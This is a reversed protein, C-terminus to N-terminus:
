SNKKIYDEYKSKTTESLEYPYEIRYQAVKLKNENGRIKPFFEDLQEFAFTANHGWGSSLFCYYDRQSGDAGMWVKYKIEDTEASRVVITYNVWRHNAACEWMAWAPGIGVYGVMSNPHGNCKDIGKSADGADPDISDYVEIEPVCSFAGWGLTRVSKPLTVKTISTKAFAESGIYEVTEPLSVETLGCGNFANDDISKLSKPWVVTKLNKCDSFAYKGIIELRDPFVVKKLNDCNAFAGTQIETVSDPLILEVIAANKTAFYEGIKKVGLPIEFGASQVSNPIFLLEARDKTLLMGNISCYHKNAPDVEIAKLACPREKSYSSAAQCVPFAGIEIKEVSAPIYVVEIQECRAFVGSPIEKVGEPINVKKLKKRGIFACRGIVTVSSPLIIEEVNDDDNTWGFASEGIKTIGDPIRIVKESLNDYKYVTSGIIIIPTNREYPIPMSTHGRGGAFIQEGVETVVEIGQIDALKECDFFAHSDIKKISEPLVLKFLKKMTSFAFKGINETGEPITYEQAKFSMFRLLTKKDKSFISYGDSWYMPNDDAIEIKMLKKGKDCFMVTSEINLLSTITSPIIIKEVFNPIGHLDLIKLAEGNIKSPVTIVKAIFDDNEWVTKFKAIIGEDGPEFEFATLMNLKETTAESKDNLVKLVKIHIHDPNYEKLFKDAYSGAPAIYVTNNNLLDGYGNTFVNPSIYNISAPFEAKKLKDLRCFAKAEIRQIGESFVIEEIENYTGAVLMDPEFLRSPVTKVPKGEIISPVVARKIRTGGVWNILIAETDTISYAFQTRTILDHKSLNESSREKIEFKVSGIAYKAYSGRQSKPMINFVSGELITLYNWYPIAKRALLWSILGLSKGSKSTVELAMENNYRVIIPDGEKLEEACAVREKLLDANKTSQSFATTISIVRKTKDYTARDNVNNKSSVSEERILKVAEKAFEGFYDKRMSAELMAKIIAKDDESTKQRSAESPVSEGELMDFWEEYTIIQIGSGQDKLERARKLKTTEHDYDKNYVLYDTNLVTSSRVDGGYETVIAEFESGDEKSLGTHVFIKGSMWANKSNSVSSSGGVNGSSVKTIIGDVFTFAKKKGDTKIEELEWCDEFADSAITELNPSLTVNILENCRCFAKSGISVVYDPVVLTKLATDEFAFDEIIRLSKPFEIKTFNAHGKFASKGIVSTGELILVKGKGTYLNTLLKYTGDELVEYISDEDRFLLENEEDIRYFVTKWKSYAAKLRGVNLRKVTKPIYVEEVNTNYPFVNEDFEEIGDSLLVQTLNPCNSFCETAFEIVDDAAQYVKLKKDLLLELRRKGKDITYFGIGDSIFFANGEEVEIHEIAKPSRDDPGYQGYPNHITYLGLQKLEKPLYLEDIKARLFANDEIVEVGSPIRIVVREKNKRAKFGTVTKGDASLQIGDSLDTIIDDLATNREPMSEFLAKIKKKSDDIKKKGVGYKQLSEKTSLKELQNPSKIRIAKEAEVKAKEKVLKSTEDDGFPRLIHKTRHVPFPANEETYENVDLVLGAKENSDDRISIVVIDGPKVDFDCIYFYPSQYNAPLVNCYIYTNDSAM